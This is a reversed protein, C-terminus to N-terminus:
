VLVHAIQFSFVKPAEEVTESSSTNIPPHLEEITGQSLSANQYMNWLMDNFTCARWESKGVKVKPTKINNKSASSLLQSIQQVSPNLSGNFGKVCKKKMDTNFFHMPCVKMLYDRGQGRRYRM